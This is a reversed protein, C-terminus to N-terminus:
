KTQKMLNVMFTAIHQRVEKRSCDFNNVIITFAYWKGKWIIYGSFNQVRDMSGSKALVKGKLSTGSLFSKVTGSVGATPLSNIFAASHTSTKKMYILLDTLFAPNIANKMSLGSGDVQHIHTKSIKLSDWLEAIRKVSAEPTGVGNKQFSLQLFTNEAFLNVSQHNTTKIIDRLPHSYHTYICNELPADLSTWLTTGSGRTKIGAKNLVRSLSDAVLLAPDPNEVKVLTKKEAPIKGRITKYWSYSDGYVKWWTPSSVRLQNDIHLLGTRPLVASLEIKNTSDVEFTLFFLNDNFSLAAPTQGYYTGVDEVLWDGPVGRQSYKSGDGIIKGDIQKIGAKQIAVLMSDFIQDHAYFDSELTPDGLGVIFIDGYLISDKIIGGYVLKTEFRFTDSLLELASATTVLKTISAPIRDTKSQYDAIVKGTEVEKVCIGIGASEMGKANVFKSLAQGNVNFICTCLVSFISILFKKMDNSNFLDCDQTQSMM